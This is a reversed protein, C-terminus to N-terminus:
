FKGSRVTSGHSTTSVSSSGSSSSSKEIIRTTTTTHTYHDRRDTLNLTGAKYAAAQVATHVSKMKSNLILTIIGAALASIGLIILFARGKPASIPHGSEALELYESCTDLYDYFGNYWQDDAFDDLFTKELQGTAYTSFATEAWDGNTLIAYDRGAMCLLLMIGDKDDGVGLKYIEHYVTDAEENIDDGAMADATVIYVGCNYQDSISKAYRELSRDEESNLLEANDYVYYEAETDEAHISLISAIFLAALLFATLVLSAKKIFANLTKHSKM